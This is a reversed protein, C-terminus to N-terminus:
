RYCTTSSSKCYMTAQVAAAVTDSTTSLPRCLFEQGVLLTSTDDLRQKTTRIPLTQTGKKSLSTGSTLQDEAVNAKPKRAPTKSRVKGPTLWTLPKQEGYGPCIIGARDCKICAPRRLDCVLRRRLCEWCRRQQDITETKGKRAVSPSHQGCSVDSM